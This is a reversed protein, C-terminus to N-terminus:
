EMTRYGVPYTVLGIAPRYLESERQVRRALELNEEAKQRRLQELEEHQQQEVQAAWVRHEEREQDIARLLAIQEEQRSRRREPTIIISPEPSGPPTYSTPTPEAFSFPDSPYFISIIIMSMGTAIVIICICIVLNVILGYRGKTSRIATDLLTIPAM